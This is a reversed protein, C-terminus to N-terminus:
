LCALAPPLAFPGVFTRLFVLADRLRSEIDDLTRETVTSTATATFQINVAVRTSARPMATFTVHGAHRQPANDESQWAIRDGPLHETTRAEWRVQDQDLSLFWPVEFQAPDPGDQLGRMFAPLMDFDVWADYIDGKRSNPFVASVQIQRHDTRSDALIGFIAVPGSIRPLDVTACREPFRPAPRAASAPFSKRGGSVIENRIPWETAHRAPLPSIANM